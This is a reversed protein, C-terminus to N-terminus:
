GNKEGICRLLKEYYKNNEKVDHGDPAFRANICDTERIFPGPKIKHFIAFDTLPIAIHYTDKEIRFTMNDQDLVRTLRVSGSENFIFVEMKGEIMHYAEEKHPHKHPKRYIGKHLMIVMEHFKDEPSKHSSIRIDTDNNESSEAKLEAIAKKTITPNDDINYYSPTRANRDKMALLNDFRRVSGAMGKCIEEADHMKIGTDRILKDPIMSVNKPRKEKLNFDDIRCSTIIPDFKLHSSHKLVLKLLDLRSYAKEGAVHYIGSCGNEILLNISEAVDGVFVPSFIQDSACRIENRPLERIWKSFITNDNIDNGYVKALRAIIYNSFNKQIYSEIEVKQKGYVLIPSTADAETYNGKKGDFVFESSTFVPMIEFRKLEELISKISDVNLKRSDLDTVCTDPNTDGILIIAHSFKKLDVADGIKVHMSDFKVGGNIPRSNYTGTADTRKMLERGVFSSAGIVLKKKEMKNSIYSSMIEQINLNM